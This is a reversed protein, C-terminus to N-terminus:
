EEEEGPLAEGDLQQGSYGGGAASADQSGLGEREEQVWSAAVEERVNGADRMPMGCGPHTQSPRAKKKLSESSTM